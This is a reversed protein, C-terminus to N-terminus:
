SEKSCDRPQIKKEAAYKASVDNVLPETISQNATYWDSIIKWGKGDWQQVRGERAGEHDSCSIKIPKLMGEFGLEKLRTDSINLNELGWRVQEGTLPKKGFKEQAKRIAEVGLMANVLGRNYLVEGVKGPESLGKGKAYVHKEMDAHVSFKGAGHQLMLAKYGAAQNGAPTVDPEAGSWWVGLMKDRPYGVAAAEKVATGNMVGWGWLLVYDPRNQRIALWQSKQEVGPHTVPIPTFEFGHKQALVQLTPIPEKGYPSDHFVLSIKKGKLKDFGGLEKAVHQIAIDAASWYTGLLPFNYPFVAGNKSDARGYGM